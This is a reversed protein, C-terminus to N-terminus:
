ARCKSSFEKKEVFIPKFGPMKFLDGSMKFFVARCKSSFLLLYKCFSDLIKRLGVNQLFCGSM